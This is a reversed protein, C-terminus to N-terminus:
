KIRVPYSKINYKVKNDEVNVTFEYKSFKVLDLSYNVLDVINNGSYYFVNDNRFYIKELFELIDETDCSKVCERIYYEHVVDRDSYPGSLVLSSSKKLEGYNDYICNALQELIISKFDANKIGLLIDLLKEKNM